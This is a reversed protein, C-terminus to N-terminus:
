SKMFTQRKNYRNTQQLKTTTVCVHPIGAAPRVLLQGHEESSAKLEPHKRARPESEASVGTGATAGGM